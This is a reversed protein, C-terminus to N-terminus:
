ARNSLTAQELSVDHGLRLQQRGDNRERRDFTKRGSTGPESSARVVVDVRYLITCVGFLVLNGVRQNRLAARETCVQQYHTAVAVRAYM